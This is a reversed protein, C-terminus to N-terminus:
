PAPTTIIQTLGGVGQTFALDLVGIVIAFVVVFVIVTVTAQILQKRNPWTVKKLERGVEKFYRIPHFRREKKPKSPKDAKRGAAATKKDAM